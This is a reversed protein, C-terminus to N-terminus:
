QSFSSFFLMTVGQRYPSVPPLCTKYFEYLNLIYARNGTRTPEETKWSGDSIENWGYEWRARLEYASGNRPFAHGTYLCALVFARSHFFFHFPSSPASHSSFLLIDLSLQGRSDYCAVPM